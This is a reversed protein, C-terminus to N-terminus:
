PLFIAESRECRCSLTAIDLEERCRCLEFYLSLICHVIVVYLTGDLRMFRTM